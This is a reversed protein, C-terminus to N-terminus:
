TPSTSTRSAGDESRSARPSASRWRAASSSRGASTSTSARDGRLRADDRYFRRAADLDRVHYWVTPAMACDRCRSGRIRSADGQDDAPVRRRDRRRRRPSRVHADADDDARVVCSATSAARGTRADRRGRPDVGAASQARRHVPRGDYMGLNSITFTGGELDEARLKDDRARAVLDGRVSRSRARDVAARRRPRGARRAGAARRRRHRREREPVLLLADDTFQVNM